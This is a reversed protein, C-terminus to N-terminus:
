EGLRKVREKRWLVVVVVRLDLVPVVVMGVMVVMVMMVVDEM